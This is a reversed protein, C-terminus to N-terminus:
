RGGMAQLARAARRLLRATNRTATIDPRWRVGAYYRRSLGELDNLLMDALQACQYLAEVQQAVADLSRSGPSGIGDYHGNSADMSPESM